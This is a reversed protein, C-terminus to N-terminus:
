ATRTACGSSRTSAGRPRSSPSWACPNPWACGCPRSRSSSASACRTRAPCSGGSRSSACRSTTICSTPRGARRGRQVLHRRGRRPLPLDAPPPPPRVGRDRRRGHPQARLHPRRAPDPIGGRRGRAAPMLWWPSRPLTSDLVFAEEVQERYMRQAAALHAAGGPDPELKGPSLVRHLDAPHIRVFASRVTEVIEPRGGYHRLQNRETELRPRFHVTGEGVFVLVTPGVAVPSTFLSGRTWTMSFDELTLTMGAARFAEPGLSLHRLGDIQGVEERDVVAWGEPGRDFTYLLQALRGRPEQVTFVQVAATARQNSDGAARPPELAIIAEEGNWSEALFEQERRRADESAFRWHRLYAAADRKNWAEAM